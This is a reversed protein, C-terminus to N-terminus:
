LRFLKLANGTTIKAIEEKSIELIKTVFSATHTLYAPENRQNRFPFPTLFPSDTELLLRNTSTNKVLDQLKKNEPYTINGDFGIYFGMALVKKLHEIRGGFCHFVGKIHKNTSKIYNGILKLQDDHADRCHFIIPLNFKIAIEIQLILLEKQQNKIEETIPPYGKYEHYDLGIEGVAVVKKDVIIKKLEEEITAKGLNVFDDTHHPHIGITAFCLDYARSIEVAKKSSDIRAGPIIIKKVGANKARNIVEDLDKNFAKFNLHAHTDILM